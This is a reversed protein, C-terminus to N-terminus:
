GKKHQLISIALEVALAGAINAVGPRTVTCQQDLTRDRMSKFFLFFTLNLHKLLTLLSVDGPATIDNCFYCGLNDGSIAKFGDPTFNEKKLCGEDKEEKEKCKVGHRMVLYTDFGLAANIVTKGLLNGFLTPLWRSERSDMVLFIVDNESILEYLKEVIEKTQQLDSDGVSHGPM